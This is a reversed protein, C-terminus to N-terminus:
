KFIKIKEFDKIENIIIEQYNNAIDRGCLVYERNNTFNRIYYHIVKFSLNNYTIIKNKYKKLLNM